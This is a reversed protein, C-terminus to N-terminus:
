FKQTQEILLDPNALFYKFTNMFKFARDLEVCRADYSLTFSAEMQKQMDTNFTEKSGGVALIAAQPPNIVASFESIGFMGLNSISFSGGQFEHPQLKGRRAKDALAKVRESIKTVCAQDASTIIPTILGNDTAVAISIDATPMTQFGDGVRNSNVEPVLKLALAAAKIIFDNLSVKNGDAIMQKRMAIVKDMATTTSIYSHPITTKSLVLRKAIVRRMNSLEIDEFDPEHEPHGSRAPKSTKAKEVAPSVPAAQAPSVAAPSVPAPSLNHKIIYEKVDSKSLFGRPGEPLNAPNLHYENLLIRAAPMIKMDGDYHKAEQQAVQSSTVPKVQEATSVTAQTAKPASEPISVTKWDEGPLALVGIYDGVQVVSSDPVLIKAIVGDDDISYEMVAKDTQIEMLLDGPMYTDGEKVHWKIITGETMTPSLAPMKLNMPLQNANVLHFSRLNSKFVVRQSNLLLRSSRLHSIIRSAM